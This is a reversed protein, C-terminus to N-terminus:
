RDAGATGGLTDSVHHMRAGIVGVAVAGTVLFGACVASRWLYRPARLLVVTLTTALAAVSTVHGSPFPNAGRPGASSRGSRWNRSPPRLPCSLAILAAARYRRRLVFALAVVAAMATFPVPEGPCVLVDLLAPHGGLGAVLKAHVTADM